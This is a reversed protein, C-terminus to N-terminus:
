DVGAYSSDGHLIKSQYSGDVGSRLAKQTKKDLGYINSVDVGGKGYTIHPGKKYDTRFFQHTFHQAYYQFLVNTGHPDPIFEKRYFIKEIM